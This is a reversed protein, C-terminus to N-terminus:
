PLNSFELGEDTEAQERHLSSQKANRNVEKPGWRRAIIKMQRPIPRETGQSGLDRRPLIVLLLLRQTRPCTKDALVAECTEEQMHLHFLTYPRKLFGLGLHPPATFLIQAM